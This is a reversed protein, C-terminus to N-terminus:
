LLLLKCKQNPEIVKGEMEIGLNKKADLCSFM